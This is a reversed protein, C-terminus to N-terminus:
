QEYFIKSNFTKLYEKMEAITSFSPIDLDNKYCWKNIDNTVITDIGKLQHEEIFDKRIKKYVNKYSDGKIFENSIFMSFMSLDPNSRDISFIYESKVAVLFHVTPKNDEDLEFILGRMIYLPKDMSSTQFRRPLGNTELISYLDSYRNYSRGNNLLHEQSFPISYHIMNRNYIGKNVWASYLPIYDNKHSFGDNLLYPFQENANKYRTYVPKYDRDPSFNILNM